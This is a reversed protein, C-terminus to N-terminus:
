QNLPFSIPVSYEVRVPRGGQMGPKWKPCNKLVRIAEADTEQSLSQRIEFNSLSGDKEVVFNVRVKGQVNQDQAKEPYKLNNQLYNYFKELGGPFQPEQEVASFIKQDFPVNSLSDMRHQMADRQRNQKATDITQAKAVTFVTLMIITIFTKKM